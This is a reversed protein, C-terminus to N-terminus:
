YSLQITAPVEISQTSPNPSTRSTVRQPPTSHLSHSRRVLRRLRCTSRTSLALNSLSRSLTPTCSPSSPCRPHTHHLAFFATLKHFRLYRQHHQPPRSQPDILSHCSCTPHHLAHQCTGLPCETHLSFSHAITCLTPASQIITSLTQTLHACVSVSECFPVASSVVLGSKRALMSPLVARTMWTTSNVNLSILKEVESDSLEHFWQAFEYSVGVNNVLVGIQLHSALPNDSLLLQLSTLFLRIPCGSVELGTLVQKVAEAQKAGFISFDVAHTKIGVNPYAAGLEAKVADLKEESRSMLVISCGKRALEFAMAKGIGDTAGTVVAWKGYSPLHKGRRVLTTYLVCLLSAVERAVLIGGVLALLELMASLSLYGPLIGVIM